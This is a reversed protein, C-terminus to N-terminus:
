IHEIVNHTLNSFVHSYYNLYCPPHASCFVWVSLGGGGPLGTPVGVGTCRGPDPLGQAGVVCRLPFEGDTFLAQHRPM